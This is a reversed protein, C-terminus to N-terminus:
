GRAAAVVRLGLECCRRLAADCPAVPVAVEGPLQARLADDGALAAQLHCLPLGAVNQYCESLSVEAVDAEINYAGACGLFTGQAMWAEIAAEDLARMTVETTVAFCRPSEDGPALIAVGTVVEHSRGSLARLMRRADAADVPKGLVAGDLVVITDFCLVVAPRDCAARTSAGSASAVAAKEAALSIALAAPDAALPSDLDEATDVETSEFPMGLWALLRRRRPSQSALVVVAAASDGRPLADQKRNEAPFTTM